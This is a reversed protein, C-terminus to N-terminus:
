KVLEYNLHRQLVSAFVASVVGACQRRQGKTNLSNTMLATHQTMGERVTQLCVSNVGSWTLSCELFYLVCPDVTLRKSTKM